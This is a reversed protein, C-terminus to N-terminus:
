KKEALVSNQKLPLSFSFTSGKGETSEAWIRGGQYKIIESSIYLGLGLGPITNNGPKNVRYFQQFVKNKKDKPIGIGFDQVQLTIFDKASISKIIIKDSEPSYKVANTILNTIVQGIRERDGIIAMTKDLQKILKHKQTTVQIEDVIENILGNFDFKEEHFELRGSQIKTVDLLEEILNTLKNIQADIKKLTEVANREGKKRLIAQLMQGYAKISTVPTKLEHSAIGIFNDKQIELEKNKKIVEDKRAVENQLKKYYKKLKGAMNKLNQGLIGLEDHSHVPIDIDFNGISIRDAAAKLVKVPNIILRNLYFYFSITLLFMVIVISLLMLIFTNILNKYNIHERELTHLNYNSLDLLAAYNDETKSEWTKFSKNREGINNERLSILFTNRYSDVDRYSKEFNVLLIKAKDTTLLKKLENLLVKAEKNSREISTMYKQDGVAYYAVVSQRTEQRLIGIKNTLDNIKQTKQINNELDNILNNLAIFGYIFLSFVLILLIILPLLIKNRISM